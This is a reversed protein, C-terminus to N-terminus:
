KTITKTRRRFPQVVRAWVRTAWRILPDLSLGRPCLLLALFAFFRLIVGQAALIGIAKLDYGQCYVTVDLSMDLLAQPM